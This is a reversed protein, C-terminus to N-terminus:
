KKKLEVPTPQTPVNKPGGLAVIVLAEKDLGKLYLPEVSKGNGSVVVKAKTALRKKVTELDVQEGGVTTFTAGKMEYSELTKVEQRVTEYNLVQKGDVLQVVPVQTTVTTTVECVLKDGDLYATVIRPTVKAEAPDPASPALLGAILIM